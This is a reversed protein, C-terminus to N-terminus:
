LYILFFSFVAFPKFDVMNTQCGVPFNICDRVQTVIEHKHDNKLSAIFGVQLFILTFHTLPHQMSPLLISFSSPLTSALPSVGCADIEKLLEENDVPEHINQVPFRQELEPVATIEEAIAKAAVSEGRAVVNGSRLGQFAPFNQICLISYDDTVYTLMKVFPHM